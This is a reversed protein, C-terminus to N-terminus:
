KETYPPLEYAYVKQTNVAVLLSGDASLTGEPGFGYGSWDLPAAFILEKGLKQWVVITRTPPTPFLRRVDIVAGFRQGDSSVFPINLESEEGPSDPRGLGARFGNLQQGDDGVVSVSGDDTSTIFSHETLFRPRGVLLITQWPGSFPGILYGRDSTSFLVDDDSIAEVFVRANGARGWASRSELTNADLLQFSDPTGNNIHTLLVSRGSPSGLAEWRAGRGESQPLMIRKQEQGAASLLHLIPPPGDEQGSTLLVFSGSSTAFIQSHYDLDGIWSQQGMVSGTKSDLFLATMQSAKNKQTDFIVAVTNKSLAVDVPSGPDNLTGLLRSGRKPTLIGYKRLNITWIPHAVEAAAVYGALAVACLCTILLAVVRFFSLSLRKPFIM